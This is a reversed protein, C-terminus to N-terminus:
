VTGEYALFDVQLKADTSANRVFLARKIDTQGLIIFSTASTILTGTDTGGGVPTTGDRTMRVDADEVSVEVRKIVNGGNLNRTLKTTDFGVATSSVTLTERSVVQYVDNVKGM